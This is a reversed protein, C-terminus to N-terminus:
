VRLGTIASWRSPLYLILRLLLIAAISEIIRAPEDSSLNSISGFGFCKLFKEMEMQYILIFSSFRWRPEVM